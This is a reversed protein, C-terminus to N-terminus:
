SGVVYLSTQHPLPYLINYYVIILTLEILKIHPHMGIVFTRNPQNTGFLCIFESIQVSGCEFDRIKSCKRSQISIVKDSTHLRIM